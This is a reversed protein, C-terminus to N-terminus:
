SQWSWPARVEHDPKPSCIAGGWGDARSSKTTATRERFASVVQRVGVFGLSSTSSAAASPLPGEIEDAELDAWSSHSKQWM